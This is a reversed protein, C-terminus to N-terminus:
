AKAGEAKEIEMWYRKYRREFHDFSWEDFIKFGMKRLESIRTTLSAVGLNTIALLPTISRGTQLYDLVLKVQPSMNPPTTM